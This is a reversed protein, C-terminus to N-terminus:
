SQRHLRFYDFAANKNQQQDGRKSEDVTLFYLVYIKYWRMYTYIKYVASEEALIFYFYFNDEM